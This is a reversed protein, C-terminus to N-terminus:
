SFMSTNAAETDAYNTGAQMTAQGIQTAAAQINAAASRWEGMASEFAASASGTWEGSVSTATAQLQGILGEIQESLQGIRTGAQQV